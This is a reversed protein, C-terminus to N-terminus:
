RFCGASPHGLPQLCRNALGDYPIVGYRPNSDGGRRWTESGKINSAIRPRKMIQELIQELFLGFGQASIWRKLTHAEGITLDIRVKAVAEAAENAGSKGNLAALISITDRQKAPDVKLYHKEAVERSHGTVSVAVDLSVGAAVLNTGVASRM